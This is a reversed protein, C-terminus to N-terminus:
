TLGYGPCAGSACRTKSLHGVAVKIEEGVAVLAEAQEKTLRGTEEYGKAKQWYRIAERTKPGFAGDVPGPDFKLSALGASCM